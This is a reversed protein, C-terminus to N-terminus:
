VPPRLHTLAGLLVVSRRCDVRAERRVVTLLGGPSPSLVLMDVWVLVFVVSPKVAASRAAIFCRASSSRASPLLPALFASPSCARSSLMAFISGASRAIASRTWTVTVALAGSKAGLVQYPM